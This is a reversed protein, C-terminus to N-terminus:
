WELQLKFPRFGILPHRRAIHQVRRQQHRDHDLDRSQRSIMAPDARSSRAILARDARSVRGSDSDFGTEPGLPLRFPLDTYISGGGRTGLQGVLFNPM